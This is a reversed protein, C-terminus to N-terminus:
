ATRAAREDGAFAFGLGGRKAAYMAADAGRLLEPADAGAGMAVAIGISARVAVGRGEIGFPPAFADLLRRAVATAEDVGAGPVVVAFEDGGIRACTDVERLAARLREALRRLLLDGTHHGLTDNVRKFGDLDILLLAFTADDRRAGEVAERLRQDLLARNPLGTLEDHHARHALAAQALARETVDHLLILRGARDGDARVLPSVRLEYHRELGPPGVVLERAHAPDALALALQPASECFADDVSEGIVSGSCELIRQAAPNLDVVRDRGDLVLVGDALGSFVASHALPAVDLFRARFFGWAFILGAVGFAMPTPDFGPTRLLDLMYAANVAFPIVTAALVVLAQARFFRWSRILAGALFSTGLLLIGYGYAVFIWFLPELHLDLRPLADSTDFAGYRYVWGGTRPLAVILAVLLPLVATLALRAPETRDARGSYQRAFALWAWPVLATAAFKLRGFFLYDGLDRSSLALADAASWLAAGAMLVAFAWAGPVARRAVGYGSLSATIAFSVVLPLLYWTLHPHLLTQM